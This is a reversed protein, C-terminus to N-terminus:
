WNQMLWGVVRRFFLDIVVEPCVFGERTKIYTVDTISASMFCPNILESIM